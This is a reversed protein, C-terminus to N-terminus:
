DSGAVKKFVSKEKTQLNYLIMKKQDISKIEIPDTRKGQETVPIIYTQDNIVRLVFLPTKSTIGISSWVGSSDNRFSFFDVRDEVTWEGTM